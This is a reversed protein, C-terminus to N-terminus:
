ATQVQKRVHSSHSTSAYVGIELVSFSDRLWCQSPMNRGPFSSLLIITELTWQLTQKFASYIEIVICSVAALDKTLRTSFGGLFSPFPENQLTIFLHSSKHKCTEIPQWIFLNKYCLLSIVHLTEDIKEPKASIGHLFSFDMRITKM